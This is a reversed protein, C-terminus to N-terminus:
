QSVLSAMLEDVGRGPFPRVFLCDFPSPEVTAFMHEEKNRSLGWGRRGDKMADLCDSSFYGGILSQQPVWPVV